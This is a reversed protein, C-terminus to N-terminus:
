ASSPMRSQQYHSSNLRTSKRDQEDFFNLTAGVGLAEGINRAMPQKASGNWQVWDFTWMDWLHPYDVPANAM